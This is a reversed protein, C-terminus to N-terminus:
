SGKPQADIPGNYDIDGVEEFWRWQFGARSKEM